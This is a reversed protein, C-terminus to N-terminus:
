RKRTVIFGDYDTGKNFEKLENDDSVGFIFFDAQIEALYKTIGMRYLRTRSKTSGTAYIWATPYNETFVYVTAVITALIKDKDGNNSISTDDLENTAPDKDGFALNFINDFNSENYIVIKPILGRPGSSTFEFSMLSDTYTFGYSDLNM